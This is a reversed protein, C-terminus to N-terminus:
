KRRELQEICWNLLEMRLAGYEGEWKPLGMYAHRPGSAYASPEFGPCPVPYTISGSYKPWNAALERFEAEGGQGLNSCIGWGRCMPGHDRLHILETLLSM